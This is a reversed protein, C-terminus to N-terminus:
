FVSHQFLSKRHSQPGPPHMTHGNQHGFQTRFGGPSGIAALLAMKPDGPPGPNSKSHNQPGKPSCKPLDIELNKTLCSIKPQKKKSSEDNTEQPHKKPAKTGIHQEGSVYFRHLVMPTNTFILTERFNYFYPKPYLYHGFISDNWLAKPSNKQRPSPKQLFINM